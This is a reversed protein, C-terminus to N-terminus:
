MSQNRVHMVLFMYHIGETSGSVISSLDNTCYVSLISIYSSLHTNALSVGKIQRCLYWRYVLEMLTYVSYIYRYQSDARVNERVEEQIKTQNQKDEMARERRESERREMTARLEAEQEQVAQKLAYIHQKLEFIESKSQALEKKLQTLIYFTIVCVYMYTYQFLDVRTYLLYMAHIHLFPIFLM